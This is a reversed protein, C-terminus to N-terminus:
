LNNVHSGELVDQTEQGQESDRGPSLFLIQRDTFQQPLGVLINHVGLILGVNQIVDSVHILILPVSIGACGTTAHPSFGGVALDVYGVDDPVLIGGSLELDNLTTKLRERAEGADAKDLAGVLSVVEVNLGEVPTVGVDTTSTIGLRHRQATLTADVVVSHLMLQEVSQAEVMLLGARVPVAVDTDKQLIDLRAHLVVEVLDVSQVLSRAVVVVRDHLVVLIGEGLVVLGGHHGDGVLVNLNAFGRLHASIVDVPEVPQVLALCHSLCSLSIVCAILM